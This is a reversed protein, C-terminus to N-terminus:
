KFMGKFFKLLNYFRAKYNDTFVDYLFGTPAPIHPCRGQRWDCDPKPIKNCISCKPIKKQATM